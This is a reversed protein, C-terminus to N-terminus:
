RERGNPNARKGTKKAARPRSTPKRTGEAPLLSLGWLLIGPLSDYGDEILSSLRERATDWEGLLLMKRAVYYRMGFELWSRQSFRDALGVFEDSEEDVFNILHALAGLAHPDLELIQRAVREGKKTEKANAYLRLLSELPLTSEPYQKALRELDAVNGTEELVICLLELNHASSRDLTLAKRAYVAANKQKSQRAVKARHFWGIAFKPHSEVLKKLRSQAVKLNEEFAPHLCYALFLFPFSTLRNHRTELRQWDAESLNSLASWEKSLAQEMMEEAKRLAENELYVLAQAFCVTKSHENHRCSEVSRLAGKRDGLGLLARLRFASLGSESHRVGIEFEGVSEIVTEDIAVVDVAEKFRDQKLYHKALLQRALPFWPAELLVSRLCRETETAEGLCLYVEGLLLDNLFHRSRKEETAEKIYRLAAKEDDGYYSMLANAYARLGEDNTYLEDIRIKCNDLWGLLHFLYLTTRLIFLNAPHLLLLSWAKRAARYVSGERCERVIEKLTTAATRYGLLRQYGEGGNLFGQTWSDGGGDTAPILYRLLLDFRGIEVLHDSMVLLSPLFQPDHELSRELIRRADAGKGARLLARGYCFELTATNPVADHVEQLLDLCADARGEYFMQEAKVFLRLHPSQDLDMKEKYMEIIEGGALEGGYEDYIYGILLDHAYYDQKQDILWSELVEKVPSGQDFRLFHAGIERDGIDTM